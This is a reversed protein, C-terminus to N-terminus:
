SPKCANKVAKNRRSKRVGENCAKQPTEEHCGGTVFIDISLAHFSTLGLWRDLYFDLLEISKDFDKLNREFESFYVNVKM